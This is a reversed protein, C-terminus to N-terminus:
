NAIDIIDFTRSISKPTSNARRSSTLRYDRIYLCARAKAPKGLKLGIAKWKNAEYERIAERLAV